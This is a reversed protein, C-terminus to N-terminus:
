LKAASKFTEGEVLECEDADFNLEVLPAKNENQMLELDLHPKIFEDFGELVETKNLASEKASQYLAEYVNGDKRGITSNLVRDPIDFANVLAITNPRLEDLLEGVAQQLLVAENADIIGLWQQGDLIESCAYLAALQRLVTGVHQDQKAGTAVQENMQALMFYFCHSKATTTLNLASANWAADYSMGRKIRSNLEDGCAVIAAVARYRFLKELFEPNKFDEASRAKSPALTSVKFGPDKLPELARALGALKEGKRASELSKMLFRATQLLLIVFDGEATV